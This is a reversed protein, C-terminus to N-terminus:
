LDIEGAPRAINHRWHHENVPDKQYVNLEFFRNHDVYKFNKYRLKGILWKIQGKESHSLACAFPSQARPDVPSTNSAV